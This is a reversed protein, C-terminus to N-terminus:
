PVPDPQGAAPAGPPRRPLLRTLFIALAALFALVALSVRLGALRADSNEEVIADAEETPVDVEALASELADDSVFPIGGALEVEANEAVADSVAPNSDIGAFFSATLTGILVSGALATGLSAGLNSATNQLGGVEGSREDPVASVTVAGLQSALAGVGLGALLLPVTVVEAGAGTELAGILAIIGTLLSALGWSVVRRPSAAPWVRPVGLAAILLTISLPLLRVGTELASLGLAVSLFLPITFFLGAQLLFQFFFMTLGGTLRSNRLLALDVLPEGGRRAVHAEWAVFGRLVLLGSLLLWLTPSLGLIEASGPKPRVWGWSGSRLVGYVALGLGAASLVVGVLDIRSRRGPGADHIRRTMALIAIVVVVEGAFVLRWTWYTTVAGGILPGAAVAVAGASAVLGYAGPRQAAAFNVAVLSVIAPMILAAGLGELVSWGVILVALNPALATTLSGAAYIVCGVAFARRHGIMTGIKGGTIMTTAMVLTYFTIATQVGTVTTGVDSAVQAISVNMVSSDLTMLFQGSALTLLVAGAGVATPGAATAKAM